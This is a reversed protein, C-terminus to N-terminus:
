KYRFGPAPQLAIHHLTTLDTSIHWGTADSVRFGLANTISTVFETHPRHAYVLFLNPYLKCMILLYFNRYFVAFITYKISCFSYMDSSAKAMYINLCYFWTLVHHLHLCQGVKLLYSIHFRSM